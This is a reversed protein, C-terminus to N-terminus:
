ILDVVTFGKSELDEKLKTYALDYIYNTELDTIVVDITLNNKVDFSLVTNFKEVDRINKNLYLNVFVLISNNKNLSINEINLYMESTVGKNTYIENTIKLGM